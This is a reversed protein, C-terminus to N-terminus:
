TSAGIASAPDIRLVRRLSFACGVVAALLLSGVSSVVRSVTLSYPIIGPPLTLDLIVALVTAIASAILTLMVAQTVVGGLLAGSRAGLAKLVGYLGTREATLLAFFLAVVVVAIAVTIGIIGSFTSSQSQVGKDAEIVGAPTASMTQGRTARDIRRAVDGADGTANVALAQNVGAGMQESPRNAGVVARWTAQSVWLTPDLVYSTNSAFGIIKVKTRASGLEVVDGVNVGRQQLTDDAYAQGEAPPAGVGRPPIVYGFMQVGVLDRAEAGPVRAGLKVVDLGGTATVGDVGAVTAATAADIRSQGFKMDSSRSYVLLDASQATIANTGGATLGDLLGGLLMLLAGLLTLIGVAAAFRRPQRRLELLAIKM